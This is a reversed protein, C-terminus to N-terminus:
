TPAVPSLWWHMPPLHRETPSLMGCSSVKGTPGIGVLGGFGEQPLRWVLMKGLLESFGLQRKHM